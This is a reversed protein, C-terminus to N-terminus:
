YNGVKIKQHFQSKDIVECTDSSNKIEKGAIVPYANYGGENSINMWKDRIKEAWKRNKPLVFDTDSENEFKYKNIKINIKKHKKNRDQVRRSTFDIEDM